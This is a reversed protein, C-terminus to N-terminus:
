TVGKARLDAVRDSALGLDGSLVAHAHQGPTPPATRVALPTDALQVPKGPVCAPSFCPYQGYQNMIWAMVKDNTGMDPAPIDIDPGFIDHIGDIFKRTIAELERSSFTKPDIALGGKAGGYPLNVVATKWTMLAALARVEDLDVEPHYRFGGKMPGRANDHQVRYGIFTEIQGSDRTIPVQVQVERKSTLLLKRISPELELRDAARDFYLKMSDYANM